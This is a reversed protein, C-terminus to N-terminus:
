GQQWRLVAGGVEDQPNLTNIAAKTIEKAWHNGNAFECTHLVVVLAGKPNIKRQRVDMTVPLAEEVPTGLWGGAGFGNGGGVMMLGLGLDRVAARLHQMQERTLTEAGVNALIVGDYNQLQGLNEPFNGPPRYETELTELRAAAMLAEVELMTPAIFLLKALGQIQVFNSAENNELIADGPATIRATYVYYGPEQLKLTVGFSNHGAALDVERAPNGNEGLPIAVGNRYLTLQGRTAERALVQMRLEFSENEKVQEPLSVKEMMVEQTLTYSIPLFDLDAHQSDAYAVGALLNGLNENGDTIVVIKRRTDPPFAAAALEVARQINTYDPQIFSHLSQLQLHPSPMLEVSAAEGFVVVGARDDRGLRKAVENVYALETRRVAEPVSASHDLLFFVSTGVVPRVWQPEALCILLLMLVWGRLALTAVQTRGPLGALSRLALYALGPLAVLGCLWWPSLVVLLGLALLTAGVALPLGWLVGLIYRGRQSM